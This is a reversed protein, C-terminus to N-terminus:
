KKSTIEGFGLTYNSLRRKPIKNLEWRFPFKRYSGRKCPTRSNFADLGPRVHGNNAHNLELAAPHTQIFNPVSTIGSQVAMFDYKKFERILFVLMAPSRFQSILDECAASLLSGYLPTNNEIELFYLFKVHDNKAYHLNVCHRSCSLFIEVDGSNTAIDRHTGTWYGVV